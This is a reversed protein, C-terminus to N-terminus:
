FMGARNVQRESYVQILTKLGPFDPLGELDHSISVTRKEIRGHGRDIHQTIAQPQFNATVAKLLGSQNGKLAGLYDNNSDIIM